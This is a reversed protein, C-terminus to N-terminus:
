KSFSSSRCDPTNLERPYIKVIEAIPEAFKDNKAVKVIFGQNEGQHDCKRMHVKGKVSEITLEELAPRLKDAEIGGAKAIGAEFVKMCQWQEGEFTDPMTKHEAQWLAVFDKNAPTDITFAYRASGILGVAAEGVARDHDAARDPLRDDLARHVVAGRLM